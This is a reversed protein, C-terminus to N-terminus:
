ILGERIAFAVAQVRSRAGLKVIANHVVNKVTRESYFMQAAVARTGHGVALLRLVEQERATLQSLTSTRSSGGSPCTDAAANRIATRLSDPSMTRKSLFGRAGAELFTVIQAPSEEHSCALARAPGTPGMGRLLDVAGEVETDVLVIHIDDLLDRDLVEAVSEAQRVESVEHAATLAAVLGQRYIAHGDLVLVNM